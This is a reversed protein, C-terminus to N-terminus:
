STAMSRWAGVGSTTMATLCITTIKVFVRWRALVRAFLLRTNPQFPYFVTIIDDLEINM